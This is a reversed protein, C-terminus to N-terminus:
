ADPPYYITTSRTTTSVTTARTTSRTTTARTTSLSTTTSSRTTIRSTTTTSLSTTTSSRTTTRSTTTTSRSTTSTTTTRSTTTTSRSTTSSSTSSRSTTSTSSTSTSSRSTTSSSRTTTSRTTTSRTTTSRSTTTTAISTTSSSTTTSSTSTSSVTSTSSSNATPSNVSLPDGIKTMLLAESQGTRYFNEQGGVQSLAAGHEIDHAAFNFRFGFQPEPATNNDPERRFMHRRGTEVNTSLTRFTDTAYTNPYWLLSTTPGASPQTLFSRERQFSVITGAEPDPHTKGPALTPLASQISGAFSVTVTGSAGPARTDSVSVIRFTNGVPPQDMMLYDGAEPRVDPPCLISLSSASKDANAALRAFNSQVRYNITGYRYRPDLGGADSFTPRIGKIPDFVAVSLEKNIHEQITRSQTVAKNLANNKAIIRLTIFTISLAATIVLVGIVMAFLLEVLTFGARSTARRDPRPLASSM